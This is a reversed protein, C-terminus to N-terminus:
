AIVPRIGAFVCAGAIHAPTTPAIAVVKPKTFHGGARAAFRSPRMSWHCCNPIDHPKEDTLTGSVSAGNADVLIPAEFRTARGTPNPGSNTRGLQRRLEACSFDPIELIWLAGAGDPRRYRFISQECIRHRGQRVSMGASLGFALM